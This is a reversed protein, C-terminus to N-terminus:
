DRRESGGREIRVRQQRRGAGLRLEAAAFLRDVVMHRGRVRYNVLEAAGGSGLVFLPPMKSQAIGTPFEVYVQRGDDYARVPRWPPRDGTIRYDFRLRDLAIGDAM